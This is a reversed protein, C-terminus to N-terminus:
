IRRIGQLSAITTTEGIHQFTHTLGLHMLVWGRTMGQYSNFVNTVETDLVAGEEGLVKYLQADELERNFINVPHNKLVDITRQGVLQHYEWLTNINVALSFDAVDNGSMGIGFHRFSINLRNLWDGADFVQAGDSALRNVGIDEARAIHWLCWVISNVMENPQNRLQVESLSEYFFKLYYDYIPRHRLSFAQIFNM